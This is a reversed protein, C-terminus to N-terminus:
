GGAAARASQATMGYAQVLQDYGKLNVLSPMFQHPPIGAKVLAEFSEAGFLIDVGTQRTASELRFARNVTEGLATVDSSSKSGLQGVQAFGTSVGGGIRLEHPPPLDATLRRCLEQLMVLARLAKVLDPGAAQIASHRWVAMIADGLYKLSWAGARQLIESGERNLTAIVRTLVAPDVRQSLSTYGRVDIVLVTVLQQQVLIQTKEIQGGEPEQPTAPSCGHVILRHEGIQVEDGDKLEVAGTIVAGNVFTGNASGRDSVWVSGNAGAQFVCHNRSLHSDDLILDNQPGRGVRFEGPAPLEVRREAADRRVILWPPTSAM